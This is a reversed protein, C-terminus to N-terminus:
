ASYLLHSLKLEEQKWPMEVLPELGIKDLVTPDAAQGPKILM